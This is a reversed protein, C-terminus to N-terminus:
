VSSWCGSVGTHFLLDVQKRTDRMYPNSIGSLCLSVRSAADGAIETGLEIMRELSKKVVDSRSDGGSFEENLEAVMQEPTLKPANQLDDGTRKEYQKLATQWLQALEEAGFTEAM